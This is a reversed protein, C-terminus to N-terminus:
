PGASESLQQHETSCYAGQRGQIAENEPLHTGCHRCAVMVTPSRPSPQKRTAPKKAQADDTLRNNRWVWFAVLVVALVLLYKM